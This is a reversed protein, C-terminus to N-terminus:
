CLLGEDWLAALTPQQPRNQPLRLVEMSVPRRETDRLSDRHRCREGCRYLSFAVPAAELGSGDAGAKEAM